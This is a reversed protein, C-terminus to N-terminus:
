AYSFFIKGVRYIFLSFDIEPTNFNLISKSLM